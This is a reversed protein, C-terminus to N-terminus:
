DKYDIPEWIKREENWKNLPRGWEDTRGEPNLEFAGVNRPLEAVSEHLQGVELLPRLMPQPFERGTQSDTDEARCREVRAVAQTLQEAVSPSPAGHPFMAHVAHRGLEVATDEGAMNKSQEHWHAQLDFQTRITLKRM